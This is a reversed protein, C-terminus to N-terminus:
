LKDEEGRLKGLGDDSLDGGLLIPGCPYVDSLIGVPDYYVASIRECDGFPWHCHPHLYGEPHHHVPKGHATCCNQLSTAFRDQGHDPGGGPGLETRGREPGQAGGPHRQPLNGGSLSGCQPEPYDYRGYLSDVASWHGTPAWLLGSFGSGAHPHGPHDLHLGM